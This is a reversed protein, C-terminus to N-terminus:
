YVKWKYAISINKKGLKAPETEMSLNIEPIAEEQTEILIEETIGMNTKSNDEMEEDSEALIFAFTFSNWDSRRDWGWNKNFIVKYPISSM